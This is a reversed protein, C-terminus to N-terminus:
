NIIHSNLIPTLSMGISFGIGNLTQFQLALFKCLNTKEPNNHYKRLLKILNIAPPIGILGILACIGINGKIIPIMELFIVLTIIWPVLKAANNTGLRVLPSMKGHAEDETVQHFHSCFLVLSTALAPGSGIYLANRWPIEIFTTEPAIALLAASTALPGFALWCLPEGVGKYGLRFPPGQYLYGLFCSGLVLLIVKISSRLSLVLILIIGIGFALYAINRVPKQHGILKVISHPKNNDDVGTEADFIDNTLNEWILLLISAVLFGILQDIRVTNGIGITWGTAILVPMVAVSYLPWKIAEKWLQKRNSKLVYLPKTDKASQM